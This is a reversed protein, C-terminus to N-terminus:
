GSVRDTATDCEPCFIRRWIREPCAANTCGLAASPRVAFTQWCGACRHSGAPSVGCAVCAAGDVAQDTLVVLVHGAIESRTLVPKWLRLFEERRIRREPGEAPDHVIVTDQELRVLVTYHGVPKASSLRHNLIVRLHSATSHQLAAWPDAAQFIVGGLGRAIAHRCLLHTRAVRRGRPGRAVEAWVEAQECDMGFSRYIMCLAAAGCMRPEPGAQQREFPIAGCAGAGTM